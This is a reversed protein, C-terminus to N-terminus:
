FIPNLIVLMRKRCDPSIRLSQFEKELLAVAAERGQTDLTELVAICVNEDDYRSTDIKRGVVKDPIKAPAEGSFPSPDHAENIDPLSRGQFAGFGARHSLAMFEAAVKPDKVVQIHM